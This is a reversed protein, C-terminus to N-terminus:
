IIQKLSSKVSKWFGVKSDELQDKFEAPTYVLIDLRPFVEFLDVFDFARQVFPRTPTSCILILDIDSDQTVSGDSSSGFIYAADVRGKLRLKIKELISELKQPNLFNKSQDKILVTM